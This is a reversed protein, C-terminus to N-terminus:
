SDAARRRERKTAITCSDHDTIAVNLAPLFCDRHDARRTPRGAEPPGIYQDRGLNLRQDLMRDAFVSCEIQSEVVGANLAIHSQESVLGFRIVVRNMSM